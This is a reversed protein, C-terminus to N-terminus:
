RAMVLQQILDNFNRSRLLFIANYRAKCDANKTLEQLTITKKCQNETDSIAMPFTLPKFIELLLCFSFLRCNTVASRYM